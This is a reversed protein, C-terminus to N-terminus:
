KAAASTRSALAEALAACFGVGVVLLPWGEYRCFALAGMVVASLVPSKDQLLLAAGKNDRM